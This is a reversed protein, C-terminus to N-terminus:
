TDLCYAAIARAAKVFSPILHREMWGPILFVSGLFGLLYQGNEKRQSFWGTLVTTM